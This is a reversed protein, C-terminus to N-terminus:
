AARLTAAGSNPRQLEAAPLPRGFFYGQAQDCGIERLAQAAEPTEVGEATVPLGLAKGLAAVASVIKRSESCDLSRVFSADIKLHNFKLQSLHALNSHGKGFDDLAIRIGAAQLSEFTAAAQDIDDIIADETVEVILRRPPFGIAALRAVLRVSFWPDRLQWPSINISLSTNAPWCATAQAGQRLIETMLDDLLGMEEVIPIFTDPQIVGREPHEWRALAEFGIIENKSLAIVPQFYPKIQGAKLAGRLESGLQARERVRADMEAVFFRYTSRGAGKAEYMALDAARLLDEAQCFDQPSRAIGVSASVHLNRGVVMFPDSLESIIQRALRTLTGTDIATRVFCAFQDGGLRSVFPEQGIRKLRDAVAALLEDGVDHGHLDNIPKFRDLGVLLVACKSTAGLATSLRDSFIRRNPLGTLPDHRALRHARAEADERRNIEARLEVTRRSAVVLSGVGALLLVFLVEGLRYDEFRKVFAVFNDFGDNTRFFAYAVAMCAIAVGLESPRIKGLPQRNTAWFAMAGNGALRDLVVVGM